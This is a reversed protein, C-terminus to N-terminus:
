CCFTAAITLVDSLLGIVVAGIILAVVYRPENATVIAYASWLLVGVASVLPLVFPWLVSLVTLTYQPGWQISQLALPSIVVAVALM